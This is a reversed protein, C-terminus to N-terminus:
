NISPNKPKRDMNAPAKPSLELVRERKEAIVDEPKEEPEDYLQYHSAMESFKESAEEFALGLKKELLEIVSESNGQTKELDNESLEHWRNVLEKKLDTWKEGPIMAM